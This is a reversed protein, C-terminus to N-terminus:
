GIIKRARLDDFVSFFMTATDVHQHFGLRRAKSGDAFFDYNWGFVADGFPWSSVDLYSVNALGHRAVMDAWLPEKDAMITSLNMPLPPAVEMKFYAAIRPWMESWRFLDGNTINLAQNACAPTTAAWVTARALLGADTMELLSDYAGPKGPFRLPLGLEKSMSAYIAIVMALNMPNGLGFGIVVSPRLASWTWSQDIQRRELFAQQDINFEPPMHNADSERAPTKFPGLHAGYVKYGQMLSIHQLGKAVPEIADVVNVLMALNPPVLEAWSPRDQYAAYFIHTVGSLEALAHDTADRDLLDVAIYGVRDTSVGGRRSLGVTDWDDLTLLHDILNGGIVGNAGVVLATKRPESM